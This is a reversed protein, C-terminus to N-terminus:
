EKELVKIDATLALMSTPDLSNYIGRIIKNKDILVFNETHLFLSADKDEGLDEEVFYFKRGLNYIEEKSGTLLKWKSYQVNKKAAYKALVTVNDQEPTVTHSLLLISDDNIFEKQLDSMSNTMKPCIGPCSTFFFDVVCIKNEINKETFANGKQDVLNFARISHFAKDTPLDWVPTFDSTDYYPLKRIHEKNQCSFILMLLLLNFLLKTKM